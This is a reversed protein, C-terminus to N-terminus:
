RPNGQRVLAARIKKLGRALLAGVTGADINLIAAIDRYRLGESRLRLCELERRTLVELATAAVERQMIEGEPNQREETLHAAEDLSLGNRFYYEKLRDLVRNRTARYLWGKDDRIAAGKRLAIYFSLFAEQVADQAMEPNRSITLAYRLLGAANKEYLRVIRIEILFDPRSSRAEDSDNSLVLPAPPSSEQPPEVEAMTFLFRM